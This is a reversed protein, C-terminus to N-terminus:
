ETELQTTTTVSWKKTEKVDRRSKKERFFAAEIGKSDKEGSQEHKKLVTLQVPSVAAM